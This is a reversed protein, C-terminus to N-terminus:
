RARPERGQGYVTFIARPGRRARPERGQYEGKADGVVWDRLQLRVRPWQEQCGGETEGKAEAKAESVSAM